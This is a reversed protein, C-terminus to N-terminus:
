GISAGSIRGRNDVTVVLHQGKRRHEPAPKGESVVDVDDLGQLRAMRRVGAENFPLGLSIMSFFPKLRPDADEPVPPRGSLARARAISNKEDDTLPSDYDLEIKNKTTM